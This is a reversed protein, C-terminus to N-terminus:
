KEDLKKYLQIIERILEEALMSTMFHDQAHVLLVDMEPACGNAQATLLDMQSQHAGIGAEKCKKLLEEAADYNGKKAEELANFAYSRADGASAIIGMAIMEGDIPKKAVDAM